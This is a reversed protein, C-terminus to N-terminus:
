KITRIIGNVKLQCGHVNKIMQIEADKKKLEEKDPTLINFPQCPFGATLEYQNPVIDLNLKIIDGFPVEDFNHEYTKQAWYNYESTFVVNVKLKKSQFELDELELM